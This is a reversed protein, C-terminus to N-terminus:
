CCFSCTFFSTEIDFHFYTSKTNLVGGDEDSDDDVIWVCDLSRRVIMFLEREDNSNRRTISAKAFPSVINLQIILKGAVAGVFQMAKSTQVAGEPVPDYLMPNTPSAGDRSM